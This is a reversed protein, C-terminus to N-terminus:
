KNLGKPGRTEGYVYIYIYIYMRVYLSVQKNNYIYIYIYICVYVNYLSICISLCVSLGRPGRCDRADDGSPAARLPRDGRAEASLPSSIIMVMMIIIM